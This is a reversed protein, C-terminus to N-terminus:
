DRRSLPVLAVADIEPWSTAVDTDVWLRLVRLPRPQAVHVSLVTAVPALASPPRQWLTQTSGDPEISVVAYLAGPLNTEFVLVEEIPGPDADFTVELWQPGDGASRPAWAGPMDGHKPFVTPPGVVASPGWAGGYTSSAKASSPWRWADGERKLRGAGTRATIRLGEGVSAGSPDVGAVAGRARTTRAKKARTRRWDVPDRSVPRDALLAVADIENWDGCVDTDLWLRVRRLPRPPDLAVDLVRAEAVGATPERQWLRSEEGSADEDTIAFLAGPNCTEFVRLGVAPPADDPFTVELWQVGAAGERPAWAGRIDGHRPFVTPPGVVSEATWGSGYTSSATASVSWVTAPDSWWGLADMESPARREGRGISRGDWGAVESSRALPLAAGLSPDASLLAALLEGLLARREPTDVLRRYLAEIRPDAFLAAMTVRHAVVAATM